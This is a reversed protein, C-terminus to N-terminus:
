ASRPRGRTPAPPAPIGAAYKVLRDPQGVGALAAGGARLNRPRRIPDCGIKQRPQQCFIFSGMARRVMAATGNRATPMRWLRMFGLVQVIQSVINSRTMFARCTLISAVM